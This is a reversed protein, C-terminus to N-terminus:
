GCGLESFTARFVVERFPVEVTFVLFEAPQIPAIGVTCNLAISDASCFSFYGENATTGQLAGAQWYSLLWDDLASEVEGPIEFAYEADRIWQLSETVSHQMHRYLRTPAIFRYEPSASLTRAGWVLFAPPNGFPLIANISESNLAGADDSLDSELAQAFVEVAVGAPSVHLGQNRDIESIIGAVAAAPPVTLSFGPADPYPVVLWPAYLAAARTGQINDRFTLLDAASSEAPPDLLAFRQHTGTAHEALANMLAAHDTTIDTCCDMGSTVVLDVDVACSAALASTVGDADLSTPPSAVLQEGGHDFFLRAALYGPDETGVPQQGYVSVYEAASTVVTLSTAPNAVPAILLTTGAYHDEIPQVSVQASAVECVIALWGVIALRVAARPVRIRSFFIFREKRSTAM